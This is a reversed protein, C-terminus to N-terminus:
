IVVIGHGGGINFQHGQVIDQHVPQFVVKGEHGSVMPNTQQLMLAGGVVIHGKPEGEVEAFKQAVQEGVVLSHVMALQYFYRRGSKHHQLLSIGMGRIM